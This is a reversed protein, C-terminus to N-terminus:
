KDFKLNKDIDNGFKKLRDKNANIVGLGMGLGPAGVFAGLIGGGLGQKFTKDVNFFEDNKPKPKNNLM